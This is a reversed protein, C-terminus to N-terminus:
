WLKLTITLKGLVLQIRDYASSVMGLITYGCARCGVSLKTGWHEDGELGLYSAVIWGKFWM